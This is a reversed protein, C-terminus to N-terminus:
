RPGLVRALTKLEGTMAERGYLAVIYLGSEIPMSTIGRHAAVLEPDFRVRTEELLRRGDSTLLPRNLRLSTLIVVLAVLPVVLLLGSGTGDSVLLAVATAVAGAILSV